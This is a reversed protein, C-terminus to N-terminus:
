FYDKLRQRAEKFNPYRKQVLGWFARSHDFHHLHCLEHIVVYDILELPLQALRFSLNINGDISCSGWRKKAKTIKISRPNDGFKQVLEWVRPVVIEKMSAFWLTEVDVGNRDFVEGFHYFKEKHWRQQVLKKEIWDRHKQVFRDIISDPMFIPAKVILKADVVELAM